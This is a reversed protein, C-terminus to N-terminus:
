PGGAPTNSRAAAHARAGGGGCRESVHQLSGGGGGKRVALRSRGCHAPARRTMLSTIKAFFCRDAAQPRPPRASRDASRRRMAPRLSANLAEGLEGGLESSQLDIENNRRCSWCDDSFLVTLKVDYRGLEVGTIRLREDHDVTEDRDNRCQDPGWIDQGVSSMQFNTITYLTLNWSGRRDQAVA